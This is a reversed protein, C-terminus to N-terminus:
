AVGLRIPKFQNLLALVNDDVLQAVGAQTSLNSWTVQYDGIKESDKERAGKYQVVKVAMMTAALKIGAPVDVYKGTIRINRIGPMFKKGTYTFLYGADYYYENTDLLDGGGVATDPDVYEVRTIDQIPGVYIASSGGNRHVTLTGNADDYKLGLYNNIWDDIAPVVVAELLSAEDATLTKGTKQQVLTASTYM